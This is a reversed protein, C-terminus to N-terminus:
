SEKRGDLQSSLRMAVQVARVDRVLREVDLRGTDDHYCNTAILADLIREGSLDRESRVQGRDGSLQRAKM